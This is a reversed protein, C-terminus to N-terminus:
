KNTQKNIAATMCWAWAKMFVLCVNYWQAIGRAHLYTNERLTFNLLHSLTTISVNLIM